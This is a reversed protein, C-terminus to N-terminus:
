RTCVEDAAYYRVRDHPMQGPFGLLILLDFVVNVCQVQSSILFVIELEIGRVDWRGYDM